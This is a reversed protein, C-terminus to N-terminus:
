SAFPFTTMAPEDSVVIAVTCSSMLVCVQVVTSERTNSLPLAAIYAGPLTSTAPVDVSEFVFTADVATARTRSMFTPEGEHRVTAEM